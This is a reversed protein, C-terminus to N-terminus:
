FPKVTVLLVIVIMLITPVENWIKYFRPARTNADRAFTKRWKSFVGHLASMGLVLGLKAHFWGGAMIEPNALVMLLGFVWTSIMAPNMIIRLLRREMVKFTESTESGTATAAHYAYLRPLYFMAAMWAIVSM